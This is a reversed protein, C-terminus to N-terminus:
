CVEDVMFELQDSFDNYRVRGLLSIKKGSLAEEARKIPMSEDQTEGALNMAEEVDMGLIKEANERFSVARINGTSDELSFSVVLNPEPDLEENCSECFWGLGLNQVKKNCKPCTMYVLKREQDFDVIKGSIKVYRDKNELDIISKDKILSKEVEELSPIDQDQVISVEGHGGVHLELDNNLGEKSYTNKVSVSDGRKLENGLEAKENWLVVRIVGSRDGLIFSSLKGGSYSKPPYAHLIRGRTSLNSANPKIDGIKVEELEPLPELDLKKDSPIIRSRNGAQLELENNIGEKAYANEIKVVDGQNIQVKACSDWLVARIKGSKDEAIFSARVGASGDSRQFEQPPFYSSVRCVLNISSMDPKLKNIKVLDEKIKPLKTDIKPNISLNTLSTAHLEAGGQLSERGYGNRVLLIDGVQLRGALESGGNWLVLRTEGSDDILILSAMKGKSGDKRQFEKVPYVAKVRGALNIPKGAKIDSIKSLVTKEDEVPIALEKAVAYIAGYDSLLGHTAEKRKEMMSIVEEKSKGSESVIREVLREIDIM